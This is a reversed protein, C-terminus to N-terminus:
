CHWVSAVRYMDIFHYRKISTCVIIEGLLFYIISMIFNFPVGNEIVVM